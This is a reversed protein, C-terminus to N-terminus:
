LYIYNKFSVMVATAIRLYETVQCKVVGNPLEVWFCADGKVCYGALLFHNQCLLRRGRFTALRLTMQFMEMMSQGRM